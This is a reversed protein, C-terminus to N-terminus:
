GRQPNLPTGSNLDAVVCRLGFEPMDISDHAKTLTAPEWDHRRAYITV